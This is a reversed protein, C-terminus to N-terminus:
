GPFIGATKGHNKIMQPYVKKPDHDAIGNRRLAIASRNPASKMQFNMKQTDGHITVPQSEPKM